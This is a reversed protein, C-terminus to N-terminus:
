KLGRRKKIEEMKRQQEMHEEMRYKTPSQLVVVPAWQQDAALRGLPDMKSWQSNAVYYLKDDVLTGNGLGDFAPHAAEIPFMNQLLLDQKLVYRMLRAPQVGSQIAVLDGDDYFLDSIGAFFGNKSRAMPAVQLTAKNIAFVGQEFDSVYVISEDSNTTIAKLATLSGVAALPEISQGGQKITFIQSTLPNIFYLNQQAGMHLATFLVPPQANELQFNQQLTGTSLQYRSIMAKGFNQGTTGKYQPMTASATWLSDSAADVVLDVVGWPGNEVNAADIFAKFEGNETQQYIAGTRVSGLLFRKDNADYALNEFLMGSFGEPISFAESGEGFAKANNAMGEEIYDFVPTSTINEFGKLDRVPYSLGAKQFEILDNYAQQKKNQQAYTKILSMRFAPSYPRLEVLRKLVVEQQAFEGAAQHQESLKLLQGIDTMESVQSTTIQVQDLAQAHVWVSNLLLLCFMLQKM